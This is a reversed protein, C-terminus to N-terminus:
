TMKEVKVKDSKELYKVLEYLLRAVTHAYQHEEKTAHALLREYGIGSEPVPPSKDKSALIGM